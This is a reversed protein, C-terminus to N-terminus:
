HFCCTLIWDIDPSNKFLLFMTITEQTMNSQRHLEQWQNRHQLRSWQHLAPMGWWTRTWWFWCRQSKRWVASFYVCQKKKHWHKKKKKKAQYLVIIVVMMLHIHLSTWKPTNLWFNLSVLSWGHLSAFTWSNYSFFEIDVKWLTLHIYHCHKSGCSFTWSWCAGKFCYVLLHECVTSASLGVHWSGFAAKIMSFAWEELM